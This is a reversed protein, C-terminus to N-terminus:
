ESIIHVETRRNKQRGQSTDNHAIPKTDGYGKAQVREEAIGKKQLYQKVANARDESLKQNAEPQGVNDTHGAIEIVLEKKINMYEALENLEKNSEARLSSKGSDFFVNDLTFTRPPTITITYDFTLRKENPVDLVASEIDQTFAKYKVKYKVGVPLLLSFKGDAKTVGSFKKGDKLSTFSVVQNEQPKKKDNVVLVNLLCESETPQLEQAILPSTAGWLVCLLCITASKLKSQTKM